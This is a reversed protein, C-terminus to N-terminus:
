FTEHEGCIKCTGEPMDWAGRETIDWDHSCQDQLAKIKIKVDRLAYEALVREKNLDDIMKKIEEKSLAM